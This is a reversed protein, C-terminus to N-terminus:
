PDQFGSAACAAAFSDAVMAPQCRRRAEAYTVWELRDHETGDAAVVTGWPVELAFVAWDTDHTLVPQPSGRLGTEEELERAACAAVAEGPKRAGSPPTWAWDGVWAAGKHARHLLLYRWGDPVRSAVVTVAGYPRERSVPEGDWTTFDEAGGFDRASEDDGYADM